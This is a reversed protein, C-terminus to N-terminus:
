NNTKNGSMRTKKQKNRTFNIQTTRMKKIELAQNDMMTVFKKRAQDKEQHERVFDEYKKKDM